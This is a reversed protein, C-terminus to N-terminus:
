WRQSNNTEGMKCFVNEYFKAWFHLLFTNSSTLSEKIKLMKKIEKLM